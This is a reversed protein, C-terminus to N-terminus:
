TPMPIFVSFLRLFFISWFSTTAIIEDLRQMGGKLRSEVFGRGLKRSFSFLVIVNTMEAAYVFLTSWYAGYVVAATIRFIDKPGLWIFFTIVVYLVIFIIGSWLLSYGTLFSRCWEQDIPFIKGIVLFLLILLLFLVFKVTNSKLFAPLTM